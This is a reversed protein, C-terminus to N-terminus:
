FELGLAALLAGGMIIAIVAIALSIISLVIGAVAMGKGDNGKKVAVAGLILGILGCPFSIYYFCCSFLISLIGLVMSAVGLGVGGKHPPTGGNYGDTYNGGQNIQNNEM